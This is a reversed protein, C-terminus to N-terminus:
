DRRLLLTANCIINSVHQELRRILLIFVIISKITLAWPNKSRLLSKTAWSVRVFYVAERTKSFVGAQKSRRFKNLPEVM